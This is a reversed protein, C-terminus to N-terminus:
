EVMMKTKVAKMGVPVDSVAMMEDVKEEAAQIGVRMAEWAEERECEVGWVGVGTEGSTLVEVAPLL